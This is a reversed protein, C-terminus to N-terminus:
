AAPRDITSRVPPARRHSISKVALVITDRHTTSRDHALRTLERNDVHLNPIGTCTLNQDFQLCRAHAV